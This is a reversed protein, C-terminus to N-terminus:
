FNIVRLMLTFVIVQCRRRAHGDGQRLPASQRTRGLDQLVHPSGHLYHATTVQWGGGENVHLGACVCTSM